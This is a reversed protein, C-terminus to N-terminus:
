PLWLCHLRSARRRVGVAAVDVTAKDTVAGGALKRAANLATRVPNSGAEHGFAAVHKSGATNALQGSADSLITQIRGIDQVSSM